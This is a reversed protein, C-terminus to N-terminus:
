QENVLSIRIAACYRVKYKDYRVAMLKRQCYYFLPRRIALPAEDDTLQRGLLYDLADIGDYTRVQSYLSRGQDSLSLLSALSPLLDLHSLVASSM